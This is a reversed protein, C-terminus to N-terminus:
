NTKLIKFMFANNGSSIKAFYIGTSLHSLGQLNKKYNMFESKSIIETVIPKGHLTLIEVKISDFSNFVANGSKSVLFIDLNDIFPNPIPALLAGSLEPSFNNNKLIEFADSFSPLGYGVGSDPSSFKNSSQRIANLIDTNSANPFAEILCAALGALIPSAFSTGSSFNVTGSSGIVAVAQGPAVVDPKVMGSASPGFSSFSAKEGNMEIAGVSLAQVADAPATIYHWNSSGSNGASTIIVVGKSALLNAARSIITSNGNMQQYTYHQNEDDFESYGLSSNILQVGISDAYEAACLWNFEEIRYESLTNETRCLVFSAMPATGIFEGPLNTSITSLVKTGHDSFVFVNKGGDVFDRTAIIRGNALNAFSANRNVNVFGGDFIGVLVNNGRFGALHLARGNLLDIQEGAAGYLIYDDTTKKAENEIAPLNKFVNNQMTFVPNNKPEFSIFSIRNLTDILAKNTSYVCVANFWKSINHIKLDLKSLSDTYSRNVPLDSENIAILQKKRRMIARESLFDEPKGTQYGNGNKDTFYLLYYNPALEYAKQATAYKVTCSLLIFIVITKYTTKM